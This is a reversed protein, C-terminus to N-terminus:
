DPSRATPSLRAMESVVRGAHTRGSHDVHRLARLDAVTDLDFSLRSNSVSYVPIGKEQAIRLHKGYSWRGYFHGIIDPPARTMVNTGGKLSPSLVVRPKQGALGALEEFDRSEVLPLDALVTTLSSVSMHRAQTTAQRVAANLGSGNQRVFTVHNAAAERQLSEDPSIVIIEEFVNSRRLAHLVDELMGLVLRKREYASLVGSLRKKADALGKVPVVALDKM